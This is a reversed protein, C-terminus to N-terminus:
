FFFFFFCATLSMLMGILRRNVGFLIQLFKISVSINLLFGMHSLVTASSCMCKLGCLFLDTAWIRSVLWFTLTRTVPVVLSTVGSALGTLMRGAYLMWVNQAAIIITFGFVYPLSCFMLSLKRGIKEVMWGGLLGGLAAGITVISQCM